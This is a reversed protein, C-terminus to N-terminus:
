FGKKGNSIQSDSGRQCRAAFNRSYILLRGGDARVRFHIEVETHKADARRIDRAACPTGSSRAGRCAAHAAIGPGNVSLHRLGPTGSSSSCDPTAPPPPATSPARARGALWRSTTIVISLAIGICAPSPPPLASAAAASRPGARRPAARRDREEALDARRDAGIDREKERAAGREPEPAALFNIREDIQRRVPNDDDTRREAHRGRLGVRPVVVVPRGPQLLRALQLDQRNWPRSARCLHDVVELRRDHAAM